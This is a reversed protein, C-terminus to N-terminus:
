LEPEIRAGAGTRGLHYATPLVTRDTIGVLRLEEIHDRPGLATKARAETDGHADVIAQDADECQERPPSARVRGALQDEGLAEGAVDGDCQSVLPQGLRGTLGRHLALAGHDDFARDLEQTFDRAHEV